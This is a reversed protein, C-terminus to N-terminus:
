FPKNTTRCCESARAGQKRVINFKKQPHYTGAQWTGALHRWCVSCSKCGNSGFFQLAVSEMMRKTSNGLNNYPNLVFGLLIGMESCEQRIVICAQDSTPTSWTICAHPQVQKMTKSFCFCTVPSRTLIGFLFLVTHHMSHFIVELPPCYMPPVVM